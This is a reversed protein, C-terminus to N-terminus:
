REVGFNSFKYWAREHGYYLVIKTILEVVGIKVGIMPDGSIIWGLAITDLTGVVRWSIAKALHRKKAVM